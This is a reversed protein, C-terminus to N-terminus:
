CRTVMIRNLMGHGLMIRSDNIGVVCAGHGGNRILEIRQGPILGQNICRTRFEQGGKLGSIVVFENEGAFLLPFEDRVKETIM